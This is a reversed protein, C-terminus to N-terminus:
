ISKMQIQQKKYLEKDIVDEKRLQIMDTLKTLWNSVTSHLILHTKNTMAESMKM